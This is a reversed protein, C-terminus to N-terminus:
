SIKKMFAQCKTKSPFFNDHVHHPCTTENLNLDLTENLKDDEAAFIDYMENFPKSESEKITLEEDFEKCEADNRLATCTQDFDQKLKSSFGFESNIDENSKILNQCPVMDDVNKIEADEDFDNEKVVPGMSTCNMASKDNMCSPENILKIKTVPKDEIIIQSAKGVGEEFINIDNNASKVNSVETEYLVTPRGELTRRNSLKEAILDDQSSTGDNDELSSSSNTGDESIPQEGSVEEWLDDVCGNELAVKKRATEACTDDESDSSRLLPDQQDPPRHSNRM